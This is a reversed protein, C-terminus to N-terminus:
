SGLLREIEDDSLRDLDDRKLRVPADLGLLKRIDAMISRATDLYRPDGPLQAIKTQVTQDSIRMNTKEAYNPVPMYVMEGSATMRPEVDIVPERRSKKSRGGQNDDDNNSLHQTTTTIVQPQKSKEWAEIAEQAMFELMGLQQMKYSQLQSDFKSLHKKFARQMLSQVAPIKLGLEEAIWRYSKFKSIRLEWVRMMLADQTQADKRPHGKDEPDEWKENDFNETTQKKKPM